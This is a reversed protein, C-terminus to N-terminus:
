RFTSVKIKYSANLKHGTKINIRYLLMISFYYCRTLNNILITKTFLYTRNLSFSFYGNM